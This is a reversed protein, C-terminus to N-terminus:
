DSPENPAPRSLRALLWVHASQLRMKYTTISCHCRRARIEDPGASLYRAYVAERLWRPMRGVEADTAEAETDSVGLREIYGYGHPPICGREIFRALVTSDNGAGGYVRRLWEAWHELRAKVGALTDRPDDDIAVAASM